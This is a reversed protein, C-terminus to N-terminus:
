EIKATVVVFITREARDKNLKGLVLKQGEKLTLKTRIGTDVFQFQGSAQTVPLRLSFRLEDVMVSSSAPFYNPNTLQLDYTIDHPTNQQAPLIGNLSLNRAGSKGNMLLTDLLRYDKYAFTSRLQEVVSKLAAPLQQPETSAAQAAEVLFITFQIQQEGPEDAAAAAPVDFRKLMAEAEQVATHTGRVAMVNLKPDRLVNVGTLQQVLQTVRQLRDQDATLHKLEVFKHTQPPADKREKAEQAWAAALAMLFMLALKSVNTM